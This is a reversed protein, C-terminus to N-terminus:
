EDRKNKQTKQVNQKKNKWILASSAQAFVLHAEDKEFGDRRPMKLHKKKKKKRKKTLITTPQNNEWGPARLGRRILFTLKKWLKVKGAHLL